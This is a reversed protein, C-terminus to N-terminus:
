FINGRHIMAQAAEALIKRERESEQSFNVVNEEGLPATALLVGAFEACCLVPNSARAGAVGGENGGRGFFEDLTHAGEFFEEMALCINAHSDVLIWGKRSPFPLSPRRRIVNRSQTAPTIRSGM